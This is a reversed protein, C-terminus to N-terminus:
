QWSPKNRHGKDVFANIVASRTAFDTPLVGTAEYKAVASALDTAQNGGRKSGSPMAEQVERATKNSQLKSTVYDDRLAERVTKGTKQVFTEVIKIDEAEYVGKVDLYNLQADNLENAESPVAKTEGSKRLEKVQRKLSGQTQQFKEWESKSMTIKEEELELELEEAQEDTEIFQEENNTENDM